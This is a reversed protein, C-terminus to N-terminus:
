QSDGKMSARLAKLVDKPQELVCLHGARDVVFLPWSYRVSSNEAASLGVVRYHRGWILTTPILIRALDEKPIAPLGLRRLLRRNARRVSPTSALEALYTVFPGWRAGM